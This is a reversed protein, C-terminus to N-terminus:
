DEEEPRNWPRASHIFGLSPYTGTFRVARDDLYILAPPKVNTIDDLSVNYGWKWLYEAIRQCGPKTLARCSLIVVRFHNSMKNLWEIAGTVPPVENIDAADDYPKTAPYLVGDFDVAITYKFSSKNQPVVM